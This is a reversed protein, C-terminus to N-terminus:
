EHRLATMPDVRTAVRTPGYCALLVAGVLLLVAVAFTSPDRASVGYLVSDSDSILDVRLTRTLRTLWFSGILGLAVGGAGLALGHRAVLRVVRGRAAGLAMRIGIEHTRQAVASAMVGYIGIMSLGLAVAAFIMTLLTYFRPGVTWIALLDRMPRLAFLAQDPDITAVLQQVEPALTMPDGSTRIAYSMQMGLPSWDTQPPRQPAHVYIAAEPDSQLSWLRIDEVVGVITRPREASQFAKSGSSGAVTLQQGLPDANPWYTDAFSRSVVVVWPAETVDQVGFTRGRLLPIGMVGFYDGLVARYQPRIWGKSRDFADRVTFPEGAVPAPYGAIAVVRYDSWHSFPLISIGAVADVGPVTQLGRLVRAHFADVRRSRGTKPPFDDWAYEDPTDSDQLYRDGTLSVRFTLLREANFGLDVAALNRMTSVMLGAGTVLVLALAVQAVVLASRLRLRGAGATTGRGAAKLSAALDLTSGSLAPVVSFLLATLLSVLGTYLLVRGDVAANTLRPFLEGSGLFPNADPNIAQIFAVGWYALVAGLAGGAVALLVGESLFLRAVRWRNAGLALRTAVERQRASARALLVGAVNAIAILLVFGVAGWLVFLTSEVNRTVRTQLPTLRVGWGDNTDPFAEARQAAVLDMAAQAQELTVGPALRADVQVM